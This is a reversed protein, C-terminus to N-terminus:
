LSPVPMVSPAIPQENHSAVALLQGKAIVKEVDHSAAMTKMVIGVLSLRQALHKAHQSWASPAHDNVAIAIARMPPQDEIDQDSPVFPADMMTAGVFEPVQHSLSPEDVYHLPVFSVEYRVQEGHAHGVFLRLPLYNRHARGSSDVTGPLAKCPLCRM